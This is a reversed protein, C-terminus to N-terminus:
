SAPDLFMLRASGPVVKFHARNTVPVSADETFDAAMLYVRGTRPNVDMTRAGHLTPIEVPTSYSDPSNQVIM